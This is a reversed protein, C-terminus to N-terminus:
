EVVSYVMPTLVIILLQVELCSHYMEYRKENISIRKLIYLMEAMYDVNDSFTINVKLRKM